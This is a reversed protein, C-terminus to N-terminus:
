NSEQNEQSKKWLSLKELQSPTVEILEAAM